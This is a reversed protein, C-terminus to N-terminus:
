QQNSGATNNGYADQQSHPLRKSSRNVEMFSELSRFAQCRRDIFIHSETIDAIMGVLTLELFKEIGEITIFVHWQCTKRVCSSCKFYNRQQGSHQWRHAALQVSIMLMFVITARRQLHGPTRENRKEHKKRERKVKDYADTRASSELALLEQPQHHM